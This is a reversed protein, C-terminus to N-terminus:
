GNLCVNLRHQWEPITLPEKKFLDSCPTILWGQNTLGHYWAYDSIQLADCLKERSFIRYHHGQNRLYTRLGSTQDARGAKAIQPCISEFARMEEESGSIQALVFHQEHSRGSVVCDLREWSHVTQKLVDFHKWADPQSKFTWSLHLRHTPRPTAEVFLQTILANINQMGWLAQQFMPGMLTSKLSRGFRVLSGACTVLEVGILREQLPKDRLIVGPQCGRMWLSAISRKSEAEMEEELSIEYGKNWLYNHIVKADCGAGITVVGNQNMECHQFARASIFLSLRQAIDPWEHGRGMLHFPQQHEKLLYFLAALKPASKPALIIGQWDEEVVEFREDAALLQNVNTWPTSIGPKELRKM